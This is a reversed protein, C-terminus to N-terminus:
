TELQHSLGAQDDFTEDHNNQYLAFREHDLNAVFRDM